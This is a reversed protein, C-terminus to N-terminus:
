RSGQRQERQYRFRARRWRAHLSDDYFDLGSGGGFRCDGAGLPERPPEPMWAMSRQEDTVKAQELLMQGLTFLGYVELEKVLKQTTVTMM